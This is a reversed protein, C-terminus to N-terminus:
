ETIARREHQWTGETDAPRPQDHEDRAHTFSESVADRAADTEVRLQRLDDITCAEISHYPSGDSRTKRQALRGRSVDLLGRRAARAHRRGTSPTETARQPRSAPARKPVCREVEAVRVGEAARSAPAIARGGRHVRRAEGHEGRACSAARPTTPTVVGVDVMCAAFLERAPDEGLAMALQKVAREVVGALEADDGETM